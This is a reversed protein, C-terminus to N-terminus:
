DLPILELRGTDGDFHALLGQYAPPQGLLLRLAEQVQLAAVLMVTPALVERGTEPETGLVNLLRALGGEDEPMLTAVQGFRGTVAGHVAPVGTEWAATLFERRDKLTDLGDLAAQVQSLHAQYTSPELFHPIGTAALAPNLDRLHRATVEAKNRGLTRTTALLQRNLNAPTFVDGDALLLNGVGLRALLVALAGGLGGLGVVLVRSEFLRLQEGVSLSPFNREYCEPFIGEKLAAAVAQRANLDRERAWADLAPASVTLFERGGRIVRGAMTELSM